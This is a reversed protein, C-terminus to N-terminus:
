PCRCRVRQVLRPLSEGRLEAEMAVFCLTATALAIVATVAAMVEVEAGALQQLARSVAPEDHDVVACLLRPVAALATHGDMEVGPGLRGAHGVEVVQWSEALQDAVAAAFAVLRPGAALDPCHGLVVGTAEDLDGAHLCALLDLAEVRLESAVGSTTVVTARFATKAPFAHRLTVRAYRRM